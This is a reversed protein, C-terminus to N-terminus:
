ERGVTLLRAFHSHVGKDLINPHQEHKAYDEKSIPIGQSM